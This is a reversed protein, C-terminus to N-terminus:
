LIDGNKKLYKQHRLGKNHRNLQSQLIEGIRKGSQCVLNRNFWKGCKCKFKDKEEKSILRIKKLYQIGDCKEFNDPRDDIWETTKYIKFGCEAYESENDDDIPKLCRGVYITIINEM